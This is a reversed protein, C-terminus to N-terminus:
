WLGKVFLHMGTHTTDDDYVRLDLTCQQTTKSVASM